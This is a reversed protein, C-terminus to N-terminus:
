QKDEGTRVPILFQHRPTPAGPKSGDGHPLSSSLFTQRMMHDFLNPMDQSVCMDRMGSPVVRPGHGPWTTRFRTHSACFHILETGGLFQLFQYSRRPYWFHHPFPFVDHM